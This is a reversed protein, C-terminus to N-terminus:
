LGEMVDVLASRDMTAMDILWYDEGSKMVDVSWKGSLDTNKCLMHVESSVKDKLSRFDNKIQENHKAFTDKDEQNYLGKTM